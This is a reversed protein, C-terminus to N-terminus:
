LNLIPDYMMNLFFPFTANEIYILIGLVVVFYLRLFLNSFKSLKQPSFSLVILPIVLLISAVITDM